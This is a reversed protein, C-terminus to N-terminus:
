LIHKLFKWSDHLNNLSRVNCEYKISMVQKIGFIKSLVNCNNRRIKKQTAITIIRQKIIWKSTYRKNLKQGACKSNIIQFKHKVVEVLQGLNLAINVALTKQIYRGSSWNEIVRLAMFIFWEWLRCSHVKLNITTYGAYKQTSWIKSGVRMVLM